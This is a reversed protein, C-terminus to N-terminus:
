VHEFEEIRLIVAEPDTKSPLVTHAFRWQLQAAAVEERWSRGKPFVCVCEDARHRDAYTFLEPLGALARASIVNASLPPIAEIRDSVVRVDIRVERAVTRLFTCKRQDSEVLTVRLDPARDHALIAIVMGPFGGGSGLDVWNGTRFDAAEFIQVSDLVHRSWADNLTAKSVLNIKPNWKKLLAVYTELRTLTERSVDLGQIM